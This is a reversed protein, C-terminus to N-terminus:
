ASGVNRSLGNGPQLMAREISTLKTDEAAGASGNSADVATAEVATKLEAEGAKRIARSLWAGLDEGESSAARAAAQRAEVSVDKVTWTTSFLPM